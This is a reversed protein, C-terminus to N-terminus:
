RRMTFGSFVSCREISAILMGPVRPWRKLVLILALAGGGIALAALGAATSGVGIRAM